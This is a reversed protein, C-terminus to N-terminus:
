FTDIVRYFDPKKNKLNSVTKENLNIIFTDIRKRLFHM